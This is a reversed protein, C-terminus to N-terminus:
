KLHKPPIYVTIHRKEEQPPLPKQLTRHYWALEIRNTSPNMYMAYGEVEDKMLLIWKDLGESTKYVMCKFNNNNVDLSFSANSHPIEIMKKAELNKALSDKYCSLLEDVDDLSLNRYVRGDLELDILADTIIM